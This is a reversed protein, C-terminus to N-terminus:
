RCIGSNIPLSGLRGTIPAKVAVAVRCTFSSMAFSRRSSPGNFTVVPKSRGLRNKLTSLGLFLIVHSYLKKVARGWSLPM